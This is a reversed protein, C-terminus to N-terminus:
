SPSHVERITSMSGSIRIATSVGSVATSWRPYNESRVTFRSCVPIAAALTHFRALLVFGIPFIRM